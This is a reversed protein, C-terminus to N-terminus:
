HLSLKVVPAFYFQICKHLFSEEDTFHKELIIELTTERRKDILKCSYRFKIFHLFIFPLFICMLIKGLSTETDINKYWTEKMREGALDLLSKDEDSLQKGKYKILLLSKNCWDPLERVLM